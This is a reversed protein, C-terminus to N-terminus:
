SHAPEAPQQDFDGSETREAAQPSEGSHRSRVEIHRARAIETKPIRITLVGDELNAEVKSADAQGPLTVRFEFRGVRRTKRRLVGQREREKIEGTIALENEGVEVDVDESRVGPVEAEIIWADETEEIDVLPVWVDAKRGSTVREMLQGLQERLEQIEPFPQWRQLPPSSLDGRRVLVAM